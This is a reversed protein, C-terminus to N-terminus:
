EPAVAPMERKNRTGRWVLSWHIENPTKPNSKFEVTRGDPLENGQYPFDRCTMREVHGDMFGVHFGGHHLEDMPNEKV